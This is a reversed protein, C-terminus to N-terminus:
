FFFILKLSTRLKKLIKESLHIKQISIAYKTAGKQEDIINDKKHFFFIGLSVIILDFPHYFIGYYSFYKTQGHLCNNRVQFKQPVTVHKHEVIVAVVPPSVDFVTNEGKYFPILQYSGALLKFM